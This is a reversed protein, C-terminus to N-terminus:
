RRAGVALEPESAALPREYVTPILARAGIGLGAVNEAHGLLLLGGPRLLAFLREVVARRREPRFYILVNRCFILDLGRAVPYSDAVLNISQLRVLASVEPAVKLNGANANRGRLFYRQLRPAAIRGAVRSASFIGAHARALVRNSLDSALIDLRWRPDDGFQDLLLMALSYPEEGSSCAACWARIRTERRGEEAERRWQPLVSRELLEFQKPERFFSTENTSILDLALTREAPDARVLDLYDGYSSLELERLRRGLRRLLLSVKREPLHIGAASDVWAAFRAFEDRSIAGDRFPSRVPRTM